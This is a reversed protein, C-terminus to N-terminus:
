FTKTVAGVVRGDCWGTACRRDSIDTDHYRVGLTFGDITYTLGVHYDLYDPLGYNANKEVWQHGVHGELAFGWPLPVTVAGTLYFADGSGGFFDPSYNGTVTFAAFDADYGVGLKAEMFDYDLRDAAGPYAYFIGGIDLTFGYLEFKYGGYFDIEIDGQDGDNFDLNSGWVGLYFGDMAWDIGGQLAATEDTQSVGRFVYESFFGVNATIEGPLLKEEKKDDQASAAGICMATAAVGAALSRMLKM